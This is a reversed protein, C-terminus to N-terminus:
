HSTSYQEDFPNKISAAKKLNTLIKGDKPAIISSELKQSWNASDWGPPDAFFANLNHTKENTLRKYIWYDRYQKSFYDMKGDSIIERVATSITRLKNFNATETFGFDSLIKKSLESTNVDEILNTDDQFEECL